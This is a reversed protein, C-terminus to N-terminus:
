EQWNALIGSHRIKDRLGDLDGPSDLRHIMRHCNACLVAFDTELNLKRLKGAGLDSYPKLHHAEIYKHGLSGYREEFDFGCAECVYGRHKKVKESNVRGEVRRHERYQKKENVSLDKGTEEAEMSNEVLDTGGAYILHSYLDLIAHLDERLQQETPLDACSYMKSFAPAEEYAKALNTTGNLDVRHSTFQKKYGPVRSRILASRQQLVSIWEKGFEEKVATVGQGLCLYVRRMDTSFLYVIYYGRLISDTVLTDTLAIWPVDAWVSQGVSGKVQINSDELHLVAVLERKFETRVFKALPHNKFSEKSAEVYQSAIKELGERLM